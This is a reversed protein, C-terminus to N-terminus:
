DCNGPGDQMRVQLESVQECLREVQEQRMSSHKYRDQGGSVHLRDQELSTVRVHLDNVRALLNVAAECGSGASCASVQLAAEEAGSKRLDYQLAGLHKALVRLVDELPDLKEILVVLPPGEACCSAGPDVVGSNSGFPRLTATSDGLVDAAVDRTSAEMNPDQMNPDDIGAGAAHNENADTVRGSGPTVPPLATAGLDQGIGFEELGMERCVEEIRETLASLEDDSVLEASGEYSNTDCLGLRADLLRAQISSIEQALDDLREHVSALKSVVVEDWIPMEAAPLDRLTDGDQSCEEGPAQQQALHEHLLAVREALGDAMELQGSIMDFEGQLHPQAEGGHLAHASAGSCASRDCAAVDALMPPALTREPSQLLQTSAYTGVFSSEQAMQLLHSTLRSTQLSVSGIGAEVEALRADLPVVASTM